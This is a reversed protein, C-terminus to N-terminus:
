YGSLINMITKNVSGLYLKREDICTDVCMFNAQDQSLSSGSKTGQSNWDAYNYLQM